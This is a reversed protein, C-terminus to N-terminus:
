LTLVGAYAALNYSGRGVSHTRAVRSLVERAVLAIVSIAILNVVAAFAAALDPHSSLLLLNEPCAACGATPDDFLTGPRQFLTANLYAVAILARHYRSDLRGNPFALILHALGAVPLPDTFSGVTALASSNSFELASLFFLFGVWTMLAGTRNAPWRWWAYLGAGVFSCGLAANLVAWVTLDPLFRSDRIIVDAAVAMLVALLGLALFTAGRPRMGPRRQDRAGLSRGQPSVRPRREARDAARLRRSRPQVDDRDAARRRRRHPAFRGRLRRHGAAARRPPGRRPAARSDGGVRDRRRRGRGRDRLRRPRARPTGRGPLEQPRRRDDADNGHGPTDDRIADSGIRSVVGDPWGEWVGTRIAVGRCGLCGWQFARRMAPDNPWTM